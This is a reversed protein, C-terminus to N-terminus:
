IISLIDITLKKEIEDIVTHDYLVFKNKQSYKLIIILIFYDFGNFSM